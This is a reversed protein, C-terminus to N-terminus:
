RMPWARRPEWGGSGARARVLSGAMSVPSLRWAALYHPAAEAERELESLAVALNREIRESRVGAKCAARLVTVARALGTPERTAGLAAALNTYPMEHYPVLRVARELDRVAAGHAGGAGHGEARALLELAAAERQASPLAAAV